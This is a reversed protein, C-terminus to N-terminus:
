NLLKQSSMFFEFYAFMNLSKLARTNLQSRLRVNYRLKQIWVYEYENDLGLKM